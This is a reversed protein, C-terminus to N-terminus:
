DRVNVRPLFIGQWVLSEFGCWYQWDSVRDGLSSRGRFWKSKGGYVVPQSTIVIYTYHVLKAIPHDDRVPCWVPIIHTGSLFLMWIYLSATFYALSRFLYAAVFCVPLWHDEDPHPLTVHLLAVGKFYGMHGIVLGGPLEPHRWLRIWMTLVTSLCDRKCEWPHSYPGPALPSAAGVFVDFAATLPEPNCPM